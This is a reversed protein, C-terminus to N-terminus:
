VIQGTVIVNTSMTIDGRAKFRAHAAATAPNPNPTWFRSADWAELDSYWTMLRMDALGPGAPTRSRWMGIPRAAQTAEFNGWATDSLDLFNAVDEDRVTFCRHTVIGPGVDIVANEAPRITADWLAQEVVTVGPALAPARVSAADQWVNMMIVQDRPLGIQATFVGFVRGGPVGHDVLGRAVAASQRPPCALLRYDYVSM